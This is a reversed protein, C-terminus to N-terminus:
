KIALANPPSGVGGPVNLPASTFFSECVGDTACDDALDDLWWLEGIPMGLLPILRFHMFGQREPGPPWPELAPNDAAVAAIHLDWLYKAMEEDPGIGPARLNTMADGSIARKQEPMAVSTYWRLWGTRVLLIDGTRVDVGQAARCGDLASRDIVTAVTCDIPQGAGELYRAVDLLVGRGAIGRRAMNEIGLRGGGAVVEERSTGNYFGERPHLIHRLSDWQSTAQPYFNDLYDDRSFERELFVQRVAGRGFLPPDPQNVPLNLPFVAGKRVLRAAAAVREPTLLNLTGLQDDDGFLGWASGAPAGPKVPLERYSPLNNVDFAM